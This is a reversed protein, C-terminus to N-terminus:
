MIMGGVQLGRLVKDPGPRRRAFERGGLLSEEPTQPEAAPDPASRFIWESPSDRRHATM